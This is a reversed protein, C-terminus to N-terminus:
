PRSARPGMVVSVSQAPTALASHQGKLAQCDYCAHSVGGASTM